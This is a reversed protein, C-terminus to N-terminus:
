AGKEDDGVLDLVVKGRAHSGEVREWAREYEEFDWVSDVVPRCKGDEILTTIQRLQAAVPQMIFFLNKVNEKRNLDKPKVSKPPQVISVLVGEEKVVFWADALSNGGACDIVVDFLKEHNESRARFDVVHYDLVEDAGLGRVFEVNDPGCTGVVEAGALKAFQILWTGVGGSAATVLVRKGAANNSDDILPLGAHVFLAQWATQASLATAASEAWSLNKPRLALEDTLAIAYDRACGGRYYNTRSYVEDGAKFEEPPLSPHTAVVTGAVDWGPILIKSSPNPPPYDRPWLLEGKCLALAHVRILIENPASIQPVSLNVLDLKQSNPDRQLLARASTPISPPTSTSM